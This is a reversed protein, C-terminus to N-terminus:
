LAKPADNERGAQVTEWLSAAKHQATRKDPCVTIYDALRTIQFIELYHDSLGCALMQTSSARARSLLSVILAIGKSNIYGVDGFDLLIAPLGWSEAREYADELVDQASGDLEGRLEVVALGPERRVRARPTRNLM